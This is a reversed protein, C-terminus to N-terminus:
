DQRLVVMPDVRAARAAPVLCAVVAVTGLLMVVAAFTSPDTPQVGYLVSTMARTAAWGGAVGLALGAAALMLGRVAVMTVVERATAGLAIRLGIERSRQAVAYALLGYLGLTALVLALGAFVGLLMMNQHRDAVELDIIEEMSRVATVPQAPDVSMIARRASEAVDTPNGRTRVVLHDPIAWIEPAQAISLYVAPKMSPEYGRERIDHVVGVITYFPNTNRGFQMRHSLPSQNPFFVRALTENIVVVRPADGGDREDILRGDVVQAGLLALYDPTGSRFMADNIRDPTDPVGEIRFSTTNGQTTFPPSFAFAAREVGPLARVTAVAREFFAVRKVPDAYKPTPLITQMTLLREPRFGIEIARLNALTRIMLGTAALLVVAAGIQLVVLADRTLRNGGGVASRAQSHLADALSNRGAQLAPALSFILGTAIALSFMFAVMRLDVPSGNSAPLGAPTLSALLERGIPVLAIGLLGGAISLMLGEIMLQRVLRSRSAGLAARVALEGRRGAARSLLLSALNACAILLVAVAAAMLVILELGINGLMDEKVPLAIIALGRSTPYLEQMRRTVSQLDDRMAELSVGPKLRGVVNLYHSGRDAAQAPSLHMPRWYDIERNRFVFSRPMVGIVEYRNDNMLITRGVIAADGGFRRQWLGHSISVVPAGTRDEEDTFTRGRQPAVGLVSFFNAAVLRGLVQEPEGDGTLSATAGRTAAIDEFSRNLRRWENYNGPSPTNKPIGAFSVDEWLVVLRDPDAFPLARIMVADVVSFIAANAGIGLALTAVAIVTFLPSKRFLRAGYRLDAFWDM